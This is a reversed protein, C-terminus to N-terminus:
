RGTSSECTSSRRGPPVAVCNRASITRDPRLSAPPRTGIQLIEGGESYVFGGRLVTHADDMLVLAHIDRILLKM